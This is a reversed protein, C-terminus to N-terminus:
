HQQLLQEYMISSNVYYMHETIEAMNYHFVLVIYIALGVFSPCWTFDKLQQIIYNYQYWMCLPITNKWITLLQDIVSVKTHNIWATEHNIAVPAISCCLMYLMENDHIHVLLRHGLAYVM